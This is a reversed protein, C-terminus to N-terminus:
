DLYLVKKINQHENVMKIGLKIFVIAQRDASAFKFFFYFTHAKGTQLALFLLPRNTSIFANM